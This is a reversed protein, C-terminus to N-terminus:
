KILRYSVLVSSYKRRKEISFDYWEYTRSVIGVGSVFVISDTELVNDFVNFGWNNFNGAPVSCMGAGKASLGPIEYDCYSQEFYYDTDRPLCLMIEAKYETFCPYPIFISDHQICFRDTLTSTAWGGNKVIWWIMHASDIWSTIETTDLRAGGDFLVLYIWRNGRALPFYFSSTDITIPPGISTDIPQNNPSSDVFLVKEKCSQIALLFFLMCFLWRM